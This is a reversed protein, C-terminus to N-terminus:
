LLKVMRLVMFGMIVTQMAAINPKQCRCGM